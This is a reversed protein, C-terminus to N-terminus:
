VEHRCYRCIQSSHSTLLGCRTCEKLETEQDTKRPLPGGVQKWTYGRAADYVTQYNINIREAIQTIPIQDHNALIRIQRVLSPYLQQRTGATNRTKYGAKLFRRRLTEESISLPKALKELSIGSVYKQYLANLQAANIHNRTHPREPDRRHGHKYQYIYCARCLSRTGGASYSKHCNQCVRTPRRLHQKIVKEPVPPPQHISSWTIGRVAAWTTKYAIGIQEAATKVTLGQWVLTRAQKVKNISIRKRTM